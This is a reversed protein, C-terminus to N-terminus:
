QEEEQSIKLQQGPRSTTSINHHALFHRNWKYDINECKIFVCGKKKGWVSGVRVAKKPMMIM